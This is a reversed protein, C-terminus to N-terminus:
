KRWSPWVVPPKWCNALNWCVPRHPWTVHIQVVQHEELFKKISTQIYINWMYVIISWKEQFTGILVLTKGSSLWISSLILGGTAPATELVGPQPTKIAPSIDSQCPGVLSRRPSVWVEGWNCKGKRRQQTSVWLFIHGLDACTISDGTGSGLAGPRENQGSYSSFEGTRELIINSLM